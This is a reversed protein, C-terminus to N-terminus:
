GISVEVPLTGRRVASWSGLLPTAALTSRSVSRYWLPQENMNTVCWRDHLRRIFRDGGSYVASGHGYYEFHFTCCLAGSVRLPSPDPTGELERVLDRLTGRFQQELGVTYWDAGWEKPNWPHMHDDAVRCDCDGRTFHCGECLCDCERRRLRRGSNDM